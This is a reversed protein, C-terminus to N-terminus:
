AGSNLHTYPVACAAAATAAAAVTAGAKETMWQGSTWFQDPSRSLLHPLAHTKLYEDDSVEILRAAGDTMALPCNFLGSSPGFMLMKAAWYMRSSSGFEREYAISILGEEASVDKLARWGPSTHIKDVRRGNADFHQLVPPNQGADWHM